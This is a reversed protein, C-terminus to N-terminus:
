RLAKRLRDRAEDRMWVSVWSVGILAGVGVTAEAMSLRSRWASGLLGYAFPIHVVYAVLSGRGLRLLAALIRGPLLALPAGLCLVLLGRGTLDVVNAWVAVHGRSLPGGFHDILVGTLWTGAGALLLALASLGFLSRPTAGMQAATPSAGRTRGLALTTLIGICLWSVLPIVPMLTVGHVESLLGLVFRL